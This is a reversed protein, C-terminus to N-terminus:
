SLYVKKEMSKIQMEWLKIMEEAMEWSLRAWIPALTYKDRCVTVRPFSAIGCNYMAMAINNTRFHTGKSLISLLGAIVSALVQKVVQRQQRKDGDSNTVDM